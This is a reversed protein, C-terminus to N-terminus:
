VRNRKANAYRTIEVIEVNTVGEQPTVTVAVNPLEEKLTLHKLSKVVNM